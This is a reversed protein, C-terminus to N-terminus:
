LLTVECPPRASVRKERRRTNAMALIAGAAQGAGRFCLDRHRVGLGTWSNRRHMELLRPFVDRETAAFGLGLDCALSGNVFQEAHGPVPLVFTPKGFALAESLASYGGNIVLVDARELLALNDMRRGHFTVNRRSEGVRGVVEVAFPFRGDGFDIQSAHISGSLMCVVTRVQQPLRPAPRAGEEAVREVARRVILGVRQFNRARTPTELPFPSLVLDCFRRHFLFDCFEIVWFHSRTGRTNAWRKLYETVVVESNNIAVIPIKRRRLPSLTYESDVVAIDPNLRDVWEGIQARKERAIQMLRPMTRLTSWGSIGCDTAGYFFSPMSGLSTIEPRGAFYELGNGSTLVHIDCGAAVLHEIVAHCRTSNGLGLGNIVFLCSFAM